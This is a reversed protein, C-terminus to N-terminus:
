EYFSDPHYSGISPLLSMWLQEQKLLECM